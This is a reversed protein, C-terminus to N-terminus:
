YPWLVAVDETCYFAGFSILSMKKVFYGILTNRWYRVGNNIVNESFRVVPGDSSSKIPPYYPLKRPMRNGNSGVLGAWSMNENGNPRLGQAQNVNELIPQAKNGSRGLGNSLQGSNFQAKQYGAKSGDNLALRQTGKMGLLKREIMGAMPGM